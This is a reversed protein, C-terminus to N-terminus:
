AGKFAIWNFTWTTPLQPRDATLVFSGSGAVTKYTFNGEADRVTKTPQLVIVDTAGISADTVTVTSLAGPGSKPLTATGNKVFDGAAM